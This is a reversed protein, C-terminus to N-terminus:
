GNRLLEKLPDETNTEKKPISRLGAAVTMLNEKEYDFMLKRKAQIQKDLAIVQGQLTALLGYYDRESMEDNKLIENEREELKKARQYFVERKEEFEKCEAYMLCYRNICAGFLDDDKAINKLLKAIRKFEKYAISNEKVEPRVKMRVGSALQEEAKQRAELEAKTRHSRKESSIVAFPKPPTPM